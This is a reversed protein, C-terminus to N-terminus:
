GAFPGTPIEIVQANIDYAAKSSLIRLEDIGAACPWSKIQDSDSDTLGGLGIRNVQEIELDSWGFMAEANGNQFLKIGDGTKIMACHIWTDQSVPKGELRETFSDKRRAFSNLTGVITGNIESWQIDFGICSDQDERDMSLMCWPFFPRTEPWDASNIYFWFEVTWESGLNLATTRESLVGGKDEYDVLDSASTFLASAPGFRSQAFDPSSEIVMSSFLGPTTTALTINNPSSDIWNEGFFEGPDLDDFHMLLSPVDLPPGVNVGLAVGVGVPRSAKVKECTVGLAVGIEATNIFAADAEVEVGLAVGVEVLQKYNGSTGDVGLAVGIEVVQPILGQALQSAARTGLAIGAAVNVRENFPPIVQGENADPLNDPDYGPPLYFWPAGSGARSRGGSGGAKGSGGIFLADVSTVIGDRGFSFNLGNVAYTAAFGAASVRIGQYPELALKDPTGTINMGLRNGIALRHQVRGFNASAAYSDVEVVLGTPSFYSETLHPPSYQVVRSRDGDDSFELEVYKTERGKGDLTGQEVARDAEGPRRQGKPNFAKNSTVESDTLVLGLSGRVYGIVDGASSFAELTTSEAPGQSGGQTKGWAQYTYRNVRQYVAAEPIDQGPKFGEPINAEGAYEYEEVSRETLLLENGMSVYSEDFVWQLSMRGAYVFFPEFTETVTRLPRDKEDFEHTTVQKITGQLATNVPKGASLLATAYGGSAFGLVTSRETTTKVVTNSLDGFGGDFLECRDTLDVPPGYETITKTTPTHTVTRSGSTSKLTVSEPDGVTTVEEWKAEDPEYRELKKDIYPVIVISAPQEGSNVGAVSIIDEDSLSTGSGLQNSLPVVQLNGSDSVYGVYGESLLLNNIASVYGQTLDYKEMMYSGELTVGGTGIGLKSTCYAFVDQAFIPPVFASPTLGNLCEMQRPGLYAAQGNELSPVPMVGDLYTLKCGVSIETTESFPDAFASLVVLSRPIAGSNGNNLQYNIQVASGISPTQIGVLTLQGRTFVLGSNQLYSDSVGGSIVDGLNCTITARSDIAPM